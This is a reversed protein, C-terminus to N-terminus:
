CLMSSAGTATSSPQAHTSSISCCPGSTLSPLPTVRFPTLGEARCDQLELWSDGGEFVLLCAFHQTTKEPNAATPSPISYTVGLKTHGGGADGGVAIFSSQACLVSVFRVPDTIFAGGAFTGTETAHSSALLQKCNIM